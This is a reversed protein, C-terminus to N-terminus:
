ELLSVILLVIFVLLQFWLQGARVELDLNTAGDGKLLFEHDAEGANRIVFRIQEGRKVEIQAPRYEMESMTGVNALSVARPPLIGAM